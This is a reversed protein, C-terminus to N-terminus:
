LGERGRKIFKIASFIEEYNIIDKNRCNEEIFKDFGKDIYKWMGSNSKWDDYEDCLDSILENLKYRMEVRDIYPDNDYDGYMYSKYHADLSILKFVIKNQIYDSIISNIVGLLLDGNEMSKIEDISYNDLIDEPDIYEVGLNNDINIPINM